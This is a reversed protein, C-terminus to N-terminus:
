APAGAQWRARATGRTAGVPVHAGALALGIRPMSAYIAEYAGAEVKYTEHWIGVDGSAARVAKNFWVWAPWHEHDHSRAYRELHEFSRWYQVIVNLGPQVSMLGAEPHAALEQLMRRMALAVPLWKHVKWWRNIRMGILFVVFDGEVETTMRQPFILPVQEEFEPNFPFITHTGPRDLINSDQGPAM